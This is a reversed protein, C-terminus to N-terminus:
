KKLEKIYSLINTNLLKIMSLYIISYIVIIVINKIYINEISININQILIISIIGFSFNLFIDRYYKIFSVNLLKTIIFYYYIPINFLTLILYSYPIYSIDNLQVILYLVIATTFLTWFSWYFSLYAKGKANVLTGILSGVVLLVAYPIFNQLIAISNIWEKGLFLYIIDSSVLYLIGYIYVVIFSALGIVQLYIKKLRDSDSQLKGLLPYLIKRIIPMFISSIQFVIKKAINYIGLEEQSFFKGVILIDLSGSITGVIKSGSFYLGFSLAEKIEALNFHLCIKHYRWGKYITIASAIIASLITAYILSLVEFDNVALLLAVIFNVTTRIMNIMEIIKFEMEKQFLVTHQMSIANIIFTISIIKIFYALNDINSYFSAIFSSSSFIVIYVSISLFINMWYMSHLQNATMEDQKHIIYRSIGLDVFLNAFGIVVMLVAMTGYVEPGLIRALVILQLFSIGASFVSSLSTWKLGKLTRQKLTM